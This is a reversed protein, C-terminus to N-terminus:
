TAVGKSVQLSSAVPSEQVIKTRTLSAVIRRRVLAVSPQNLVNMVEPCSGSATPGAADRSGASTCRGRQCCRSQLVGQVSDPTEGRM